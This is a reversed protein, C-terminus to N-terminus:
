GKATGRGHVAGLVGYNLKVQQDDRSVPGFSPSTPMRSSVCFKGQQRQSISLALIICDASSSLLPRPSKPPSYSDRTCDSWVTANVKLFM